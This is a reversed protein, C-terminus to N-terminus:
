NFVIMGVWNLDFDLSRFFEEEFVFDCIVVVFGQFYLVSWDCMVFVNQMYCDMFM